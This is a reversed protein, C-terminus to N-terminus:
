INGKITVTAPASVVTYKGDDVMCIYTGNGVNRFTSSTTGNTDYLVTGTTDYLVTGNVVRKWIISPRYGNFQYSHPVTNISCSLDVPNYGTANKPQMTFSIPTSQILYPLNGDVITAM